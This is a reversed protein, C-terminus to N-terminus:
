RDRVFRVSTILDGQVEYISVYRFTGGQRIVTEENIVYRGQEIQHHIEVSVAATSFLPEFISKLHAKGKRGIKKDPYDYIQINDSYLALFADLNHENHATMRANVINIPPQSNKQKM